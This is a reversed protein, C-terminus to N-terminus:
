QMSLYVLPSSDENVPVNDARNKSPPSTVPPDLGSTSPHSLSVIREGALPTSVRRAPDNSTSGLLEQTRAPAPVLHNSSPSNLFPNSLSSSSSSIPFAASSLFSTLQAVDAQSPASLVGSILPSTSTSETQTEQTTHRPPPQLQYLSTQM